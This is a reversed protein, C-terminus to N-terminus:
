GMPYPIEKQLKVIDKMIERSLTIEAADLHPKLQKLTRV